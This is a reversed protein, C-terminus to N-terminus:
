SKLALGSTLRELEASSLVRPASPRRLGPETGNDLVRIPRQREGPPDATAKGANPGTLITVKRFNYRYIEVRIDGSYRLARMAPALLDPHAGSGTSAPCRAGALAAAEIVAFAKEIKDRSVATTM